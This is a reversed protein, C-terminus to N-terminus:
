YAYSLLTRKFGVELGIEPFWGLRNIKDISPLVRYANSAIYGPKITSSDTFEISIDSTSLKALLYALNLISTEANPNAMNYSEGPEGNALLTIFASTADSLYCFSRLSQGTSAIRIDTGHLADRVFDAFVRGDDLSMQPGYTHFIRVMTANLGNQECYAKCISEGMRKSEAYCSRINVPDVLGYSSEELPTNNATGYVESSSFYLLKKSGWKAAQECLRLTGLCNPM